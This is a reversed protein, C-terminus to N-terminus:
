RCRGCSRWPSDVASATMASSTSHVLFQANRTFTAEPHLCGETSRWLLGIKRTPARRGRRGSGGGGGGGGGRRRLVVEVVLPVPRTVVVACESRQGDDRQICFENPTLCEERIGSGPSSTGRPPDRSCPWDQAAIAASCSNGHWVETVRDALGDEM